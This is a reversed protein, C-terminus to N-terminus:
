TVKLMVMMMQAVTLIETTGHLFHKVLVVGRKGLPMIKFFSIFAFVQETVDINIIM